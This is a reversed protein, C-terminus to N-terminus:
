PSAKRLTARYVLSVAELSNEESVHPKSYIRGFVLSFGVVSFWVTRRHQLKLFLLWPVPLKFDLSRSCDECILWFDALLHLHLQLKRSLPQNLPANIHWTDRFHERCTRQDVLWMGCCACMVAHTHTTRTVHAHQIHQLPAIGRCDNLMSWTLNVTGGATWKRGCTSM